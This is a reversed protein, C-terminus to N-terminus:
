KNYFTLSKTTQHANECKLSLSISSHKTYIYSWKENEHTSDIQMIQKISRDNFHELWIKVTGPQLNIQPFFHICFFENRKFFPILACFGWSDQNPHLFAFSAFAQLWPSKLSQILTWFLIGISCLKRYLCVMTNVAVDKAQCHYYYPYKVRCFPPPTSYLGERKEKQVSVNGM